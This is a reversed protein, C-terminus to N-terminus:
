PSETPQSTIHRTRMYWQRLGREEAEYGGVPYYMQKFWSCFQSFTANFIASTNAYRDYEGNWGDIQAMLWQVYIDDNPPDLIMQHELDDPHKLILRDVELPALLFVEHMLRQELRNLAAFKAEQSFSNPKLDDALEIAQKPTM